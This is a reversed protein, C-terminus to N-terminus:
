PKDGQPNAAAAPTGRGPEGLIVDISRESAGPLRLILGVREGPSGRVLWEFRQTTGPTLGRVREVRRGSLTNEIPNGLRVILPEGLSERRAFATHTPLRGDNRVALRIRHVGSSLAEVQPGEITWIPLAELLAVVFDTHKAALADLEAAPPTSRFLPVFGGIEVRGLTPHEFPKWPLFGSGQRDRDSYHLWQGDETFDPTLPGLEGNAAIEGTRVPGTPLGVNGPGGPGGRRGGRPRGAAPPQAAPQTAASPAEPTSSTAPRPESPPSRGEGRRPREERPSDGETSEAPPASPEPRGWVVTAMSPIGRQAYLWSHFAGAPDSAPARSQGTSERFIRSLEAYLANDEADITLPVRPNIDSGRAELTRALTDHRGYTVAAAIEPRGLVFRALALSEPESLPTPGAGDEFEPWRHMFNRDLDVGGPPDENILGDGDEDLGELLLRYVPREGKLPDAARLLRPEDPDAVLTAAFPPRPEAVRMTAVIGDGDLDRPGDEDTAGDRDEDIARRTRTSPTGPSAHTRELADRNVMPVIWISREALLAAHADALRQAVRLATEPGVPHAGDLGAVLLLAPAGAPGLRLARIARGDTSRGIEVLEALAGHSEAIASLRADLEAPTAYGALVAAPRPPAEAAPSDQPAAASLPGLAAVLGLRLALRPVLQSAPQSAPRSAM